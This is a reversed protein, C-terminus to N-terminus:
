TVDWGIPRIPADIGGPGTTGRDEGGNGPDLVVHRPGVVTASAAPVSGPAGCADVVLWNDGDSGTIALAAGAATVVAGRADDALPPLRDAVPITSTTVSSSTSGTDAAGDLTSSTASTDGFLDGAPEGGSDDACAAAVVVATLVLALGRAASKM